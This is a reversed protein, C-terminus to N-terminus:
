AAPRGRCPSCAGRLRLPCSARCPDNMINPGIRAGATGGPLTRARRSRGRRGPGLAAPPGGGPGRPRTRRAPRAGFEGTAGWPRSGSTRSRGRDYSRRGSPRPSVQRGPTEPGVAAASPGRPALGDVPGIPAAVPAPAGARSWRPPAGRPSANPDCFTSTGGASTPRTPSYSTLDDHVSLHRGSLRDGEGAALRLVLEVADSPDAGRGERLEKATWSRIAEEYPTATRTNLVREGMGIPLLGPHVSFISIGYRSTEHALNETLKAVAAKSVPLGVGLALPAPRCSQDPQHGSRTAARGHDAAGGSFERAHGPRQRRLGVVVPPRRSGVDTRDTRHRGRQQAPSRDTRAPLDLETVGAAVAEPDTVDATVAAATGGGARILTLSEDLEDASRAMLGAAIGRRALSTALLRGIGRRRRHGPRGDVAAPEAPRRPRPIEPGRGRVWGGDLALSVPGCGSWWTPQFPRNAVRQDALRGPGPRSPRPELPAQCPSEEWLSQTSRSRSGAETWVRLASM